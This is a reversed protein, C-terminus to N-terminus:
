EYDWDGIESDGYSADYILNINGLVRMAEQHYRVEKARKIQGQRIKHYEDCVRKAGIHQGYWFAAKIIQDTDESELIQKLTKM